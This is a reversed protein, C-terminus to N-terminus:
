KGPFKYCEDIRGCNLFRLGKACRKLYQGNFTFTQDSLIADTKNGHAPHPGHVVLPCYCVSHRPSDAVVVEPLAESNNYYTEESFALRCATPHILTSHHPIRGNPETTSNEMLPKPYELLSRTTKANNADELVM